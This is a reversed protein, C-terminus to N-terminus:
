DFLIIFLQALKISRKIVYQTMNVCAAVCFWRSKCGFTGGNVHGRFVYEIDGELGPFNCAVTALRGQSYLLCYLDVLIAIAGVTLAVTARYCTPADIM